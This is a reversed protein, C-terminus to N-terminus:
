FASKNSDNRKLLFVLLHVSDLYNGLCEEVIHNTYSGSSTLSLYDLGCIHHKAMNVMVHKTDWYM